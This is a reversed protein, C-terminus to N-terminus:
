SSSPAQANNEEQIHRKQLHHIEPSKLSTKDATVLLLDSYRSKEKRYNKKQNHTDTNENSRTTASTPHIKM